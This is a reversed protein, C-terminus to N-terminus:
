LDDDDEDEEYPGRAVQKPDYQATPPSLAMDGILPTREMMFDTAQPLISM